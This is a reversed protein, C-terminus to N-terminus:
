PGFENLIGKSFFIFNYQGITQTSGVTSTRKTKREEFFAVKSSFSVTSTSMVDSKGYTCIEPGAVPLM